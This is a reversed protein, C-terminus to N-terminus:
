LPGAASPISLAPSAALADRYQQWYPVALTGSTGHQSEKGAGTSVPSPTEPHISRPICTAGAVTAISFVETAFNGAMNMHGDNDEPSDRTYPSGPVAPEARAPQQQPQLPSATSPGAKGPKKCSKKSSITHSSAPPSWLSIQPLMTSTCHVPHAPQATGHWILQSSAM